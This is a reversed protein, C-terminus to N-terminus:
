FPPSDIELDQHSGSLVADLSTVDDVWAAVGGAESIGRLFAMQEASPKQGPRKVEVALITGPAVHRSKATFYGMIDAQGKPGFRVSQGRRKAYDGLHGMAAAFQNRRVVGLVANMVRTDEPRAGGTNARWVVVEPAWHLREMCARLVQSETPTLNPM